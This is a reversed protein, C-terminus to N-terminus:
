GEAEEPGCGNRRVFAYIPYWYTRCLKELALSVEPSDPRSADVVVSWHTTVFQASRVRLPGCEGEERSM